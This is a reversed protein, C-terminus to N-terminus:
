EDAFCLFILKPAVLETTSRLSNIKTRSLQNYWKSAARTLSDQFCHILLQDNNVYMTMRRCFMSIHAEPSSTRNYKEFEPMKFKYPLVLEPVLSLEKADIGYYSEVCEMARFKEELWKYKEELQKPLEDNMKEKGTTEDFDPVVPNVLNDGPNSGSGAQFNMPTTVGAQFHQPKITVSSKRPYVEVQTQVHQPTFGPPYIPGENDGEMNLVSCKGKDTRGTLLQTLQAMMSGQSEMMKDMMKQQIKVLQENMQQQLQDQKEKQFQELREM